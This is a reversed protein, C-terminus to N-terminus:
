YSGRNQIINRIGGRPNAVDGKRRPIIHIHSHFVTQGANIGDNIGINFGTVKRDNKLIMQRMEDVLSLCANREDFDLDFFSPTHRLPIVLTHDKAIPYMDSLVIALSNKAFIDFQIECFPCYEEKKRKYM